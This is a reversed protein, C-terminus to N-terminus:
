RVNEYVRSLVIGVLLFGILGKVLLHALLELPIFLLIYMHLYSPVDSIIYFLFGYILGKMWGGRPISKYFISFTLGMIIGLIISLVMNQLIISPTVTSYTLFTSSTNNFPAFPINPAKMVMDIILDIFFLLIGAVTGSILGKRLYM